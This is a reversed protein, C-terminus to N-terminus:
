SAKKEEKEREQKVCNMLRKVIRTIPYISFIINDVYSLFSGHLYDSTEEVLIYTLSGCRAGDSGGGVEEEV